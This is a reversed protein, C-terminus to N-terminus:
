TNRRVFSKRLLAAQDLLEDAEGDSIRFWELFREDMARQIRVVKEPHDQLTIIENVQEAMWQEQDDDPPEPIPIGKLPTAYLELDKGKRKGYYSLWAYCLASNLWSLLYELSYFCTDRRQLYYVDASAYWPDPALAFVNLGARQPAVVKAKEFIAPDRPWHLSHWQRMGMQVERRKELLPRYPELHKKLAPFREIEPLTADTLYLLWQDTQSSVRYPWIQSNKYFPKLFAGLAPEEKLLAQKEVNNLVFIGNGAGSLGLLKEHKATMKDAGSVLGQNILCLDQLQFRTIREVKELLNRSKGPSRILLQGRQDFLDDAAPFLTLTAGKGAASLGETLLRNLFDKPRLKDTVHLLLPQAAPTGARKGLCYILNHQGKAHVFLTVSEPNVLWHFVTEERLRSRLKVAGDATAFYSTTVYCLVGDPALLDVGRHLFYYAFDMNKEYHLRGFRTEKMNRFLATNGKEGVYPPNGLIIQYSEKEGRENRSPEWNLSNACYLQLKLGKVFGASEPEEGLMKKLQLRLLLEALLRTEPQHDVGTIRNEAVERILSAMTVRSGCVGHIRQGMTVLALLGQRLFVGSGCSLDLLNLSHFWDLQKQALHPSIEQDKFGNELPFFRGEEVGVQTVYHARLSEKVMFAALKEPTYYSGTSTRLQQSMSLQFLTELDPIDAATLDPLVVTEQKQMRQDLWAFTHRMTESLSGAQENAVTKCASCGELRRDILWLLLHPQTLTNLEPYLATYLENVVQDWQTYSSVLSVESQKKKNYCLWMWVTITSKYREAMSPPFGM